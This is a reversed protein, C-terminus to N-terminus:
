AFDEDGPVPPVAEGLARLRRAWKQCKAEATMFQRPRIYQAMHLGCSMDDGASRWRLYAARLRRKFWWRKM